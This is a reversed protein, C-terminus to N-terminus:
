DSGSTQATNVMAIFQSGLSQCQNEKSGNGAVECNARSCAIVQYIGQQDHRSTGSGTRLDIDLGV